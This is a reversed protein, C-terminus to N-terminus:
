FYNSPEISFNWKKDIGRSIGIRTKRHIKKIKIGDTIYLSSYKTLDCENEKLSINLAQTL